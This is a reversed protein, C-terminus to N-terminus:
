PGETSGTAVAEAVAGRASQASDALQSLVQDQVELTSSLMKANDIHTDVRQKLSRTATLTDADAGYGKLDTSIKGSAVENEAKNQRNLGSMINLLASQYTTSTAIRQM